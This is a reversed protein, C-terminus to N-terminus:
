VTAHGPGQELRQKLRELARAVDNRMGLSILPAMLKLLGGPKPAMVLNVRTGAGEESLDWWGAPEMSGPGAKAPPGRWALKSHPEFKTREFTGKAGRAMEYRYETGLGPEGESIQEVHVFETAYEPLHESRALYEFVEDRSMAIVIEAEVRM